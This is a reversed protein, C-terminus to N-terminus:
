GNINYLAIVYRLTFRNQLESSILQLQTKKLDVILTAYWDGLSVCVDKPLCSIRMVFTSFILFEPSEM